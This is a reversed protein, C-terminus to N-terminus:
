VKSEDDAGEKLEALVRRHYTLKQKFYDSIVSRVSICVLAAGTLLLLALEVLTNTDITM